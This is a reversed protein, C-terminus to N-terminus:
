RSDAQPTGRIVALDALSPPPGTLGVEAIYVDGAGSPRDHEDFPESATTIVLQDFADGAFIPCTVYPTPVEVVDALEGAVYRHVAGGGWLAIWLGGDDDTCMGDPKGAEAPIAVVTRRDSVNGTALDYAFSDVRQTPTDIFFMTAGDASWALGNSTTVGGVLEIVAGDRFSWLSAVPARPRTRRMTGGVFRGVPDAKGDNMRMDPSSTPLAAILARGGGESVHWLGSSGAVVLDGQTTEAAASVPEDFTQVAPEGARDWRLLQHREIDVWLLDGSRHQLPGEGLVCSTALLTRAQHTRVV